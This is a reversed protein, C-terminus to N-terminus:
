VLNGADSLGTALNDQDVMEAGLGPRAAHELLAKRRHCSPEAPPRFEAPLPQRLPGLAMAAHPEDFAPRHRRESMKRQNAEPANPHTPVPSPPRVPLPLRCA